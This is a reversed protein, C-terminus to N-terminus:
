LYVLLCTVFTLMEFSFMECFFCTVLVCFWKLYVLFYKVFTLMECTFMESFFCKM